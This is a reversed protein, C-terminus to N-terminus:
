YQTNPLLNSYIASDSLDLAPAWVFVNRRSLFSLVFSLFMSSVKALLRFTGARELYSLRDKRREAM